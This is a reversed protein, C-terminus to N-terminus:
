LAATTLTVIGVGPGVDAGYADQYALTLTASGVSSTTGTVYWDKRATLAIDSGVDSSGAALAGSAVNVTVTFYAGPVGQQPLCWEDTVETYTPSTDAGTIRYFKGDPDLRIGVRQTTSLSQSNVTRTTVNVSYRPRLAALLAHAGM